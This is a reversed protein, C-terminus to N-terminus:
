SEEEDSSESESEESQEGEVTVQVSAYLDGAFRLKVESTGVEKIHGDMKVIEDAVSFGQKRLEEAIDKEAVSGFLHGMENARAVLKVEAGDVAECAQELRNREEIRKQAAKEKEESIARLNDKTPVQGIGQPILYNRAYGESVEVVDGLWGLKAVDEVLLVKM